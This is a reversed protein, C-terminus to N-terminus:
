TNREFRCPRSIATCLFEPPLSSLSLFLPAASPLMFALDKAAVWQALYVLSRYLDFFISVAFFLFILGMWLYGIHSLVVAIQEFGRQECVHIILPALVMLLMWGGLFSGAVAHLNLASRMRLFTYLHVSGYVSLVTTLFLIM